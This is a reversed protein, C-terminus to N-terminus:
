RWSVITRSPGIEVMESRAFGANAFMSEYASYPHADGEPTSGLMTMAFMAQTPPSIRSEDPIFGLTLARGGPLMAAHVRRLLRECDAPGHLQLFNTLLVVDYGDGLEAEFASGAITRYRGAAKSARANEVAVELVPAWDLGRSRWTKGASPWRSAM